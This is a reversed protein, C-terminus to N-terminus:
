KVIERMLEEYEDLMKEISFNKLAHERCAARDKILAEQIAQTLWETSIDSTISGVKDTVIENIAWKNFAAVPVWAALAEATVYGFPEDWVSTYLFCQAQAVITCLEAHSLPWKHEVYEWIYPEVYKAFYAEDFKSGILILKKKMHLAAQVAYKAWKSEDIRGFWVMYDWVKDSPKWISTDIGNHIVHTNRIIWSTNKQFESVFVHQVKWVFQQELEITRRVDKYVPVHHVKIVPVSLKHVYHLFGDRFSSDLVLDYDAAAVKYSIEEYYYKDILTILEYNDDYFGFVDAVQNEIISVWPVDSGPSCYLDIKHWKRALHTCLEYLFKETGWKFPEKIAADRLGIVAIKM